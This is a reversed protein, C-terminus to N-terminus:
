ALHVVLRDGGHAGDAVVERRVIGLREVLDRLDFVVADDGHPASIGTGEHASAAALVPTDGVRFVEIFFFEGLHAVQDPVFDEGQDLGQACDGDRM